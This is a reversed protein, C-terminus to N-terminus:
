RRCGTPPLYYSTGEYDLSQLPSPKITSRAADRTAAATLFPVLGTLCNMMNNVAGFSANQNLPMLGLPHNMMNNVAIPSFRVAPGRNFPIFEPPTGLLGASNANSTNTTSPVQVSIKSLPTIDAANSSGTDKSSSVNGFAPDTNLPVCEKSTQMGSHQNKRTNDSSLPSNGMPHAAKTVTSTPRTNKTTAAKTVTSSPAKRSGTNRNRSTSNSSPVTMTGIGLSRSGKTWAPPEPSTNMGSSTKKMKSPKKWPPSERTNSAKKWPPSIRTRSSKIWPPTKSVFPRVSNSNGDMALSSMSSRGAGFTAIMGHGRSFLLTRRTLPTQEEQRMDTSKRLSKEVVNRKAKNLVSKAVLSTTSSRRRSVPTKATMSVLRTPTKPPSKDTLRKTKNGFIRVITLDCYNNKTRAVIMSTFEKNWCISSVQYSESKLLAGMYKGDACSFMQVCANNSDSIFLHGEQDATVSQPNMERSNGPLKDTLSWELSNSKTDYAHVSGAGTTILLRKEGSQACCMSRFHDEKTRTVITGGSPKPPSTSCDLWHVEHPSNAKDEYLLISPAAKCVVGPIRFAMSYTLVTTKFNNADYFELKSSERFCFM